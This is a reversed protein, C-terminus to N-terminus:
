SLSTSSRSGESLAMRQRIAEDFREIEETLSEWLDLGAKTGLPTEGMPFVRQVGEPTVILGIKM